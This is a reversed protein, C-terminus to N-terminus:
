AFGCERKFESPNFDPDDWQMEEILDTVLEHLFHRCSVHLKDAGDVDMRRIIRALIESTIFVPEDAAEQDSAWDFLEQRQAADANNLDYVVDPVFSLSERGCRISKYMWGGDVKTRWMPRHTDDGHDVCEWKITM